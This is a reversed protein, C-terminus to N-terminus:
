NRSTKSTEKRYVQPISTKNKLLILVQFIKVMALKLIPTGEIKNIRPKIMTSIDIIDYEQLTQFKGLKSPGFNLHEM